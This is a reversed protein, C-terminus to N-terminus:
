KKERKKSKAKTKAEPFEWVPGENIAERHLAVMTKRLEALKEPHSAAIDKEQGLDDKVNYLEFSVLKTSKIMPMDEAQIGHEKERAEDDSHAILVYDGLRMSAAPSTRYFFTLIPATRTFPKGELVPRISV